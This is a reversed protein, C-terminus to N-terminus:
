KVSMRGQATPACRETRLEAGGASYVTLVVDRDTLEAIAFTAPADPPADGRLHGPTVFCRPGIQVIGARASNGHFFVSANAIDDRSLDAKDHVLCCIRGEVLDVHTRPVEGSVGEPCARSAVRVIRAAIPDPTGRRRRALVGDVDAHRGGLFFVQEAGAREFREFARALADLNGHTDSALGIRM